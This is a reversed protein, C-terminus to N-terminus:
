PLRARLFPALRERQEAAWTRVRAVAEDDHVPVSDEVLATGTDLVRESQARRLAPLLRGYRRRRERELRPPDWRRLGLSRCASISEVARARVLADFADDDLPLPVRLSLGSQWAPSLCTSGTFPAPDFLAAAEYIARTVVVPRRHALGFPPSGSGARPDGVDRFRAWAADVLEAEPAGSRGVFLPVWDDRSPARRVLVATAFVAGLLACAYRDLSEILRLEPAPEHGVINWTGDRDHVRLEEAFRGLLALAAVLRARIALELEHELRPTFGDRSTDTSAEDRIKPPVRGSATPLPTPLDPLDISIDRDRLARVLADLRQHRPQNLYAWGVDTLLRTASWLATRSLRGDTGPHLLRSGTNAWRRYARGFREFRVERAPRATPKEWLPTGALCVGREDLEMEWAGGFARATDLDDHAVYDLNYFLGGFRLLRAHERRLRRVFDMERELTPVDAVVVLDIDSSGPLSVESRTLSGTLYVARVGPIRALWSAAARAFAAYAVRGARTMFPTREVWDVFADAGRRM